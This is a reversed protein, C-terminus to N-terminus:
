AIDDGDCAADAEGSRGSQNGSIFIPKLFFAGEAITPMEGDLAPADAILASIQYATLGEPITLQHQVPHGHRLIELAEKM